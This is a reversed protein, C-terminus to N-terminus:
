SGSFTYDIEFVRILTNTWTSWDSWLEVELRNTTVPLRCPRPLWQDALFVWDVNISVPTGAPVLDVVNAGYGCITQGDYFRVTLVANSMPRDVTVEFTGHWSQTCTRPLDGPSSLPCNSPVILLAGAAPSLERVAITGGGPGTAPETGTPPPTPPRGSADPMSPSSPIVGKAASCAGLLAGVLLIPAVRKLFGAFM